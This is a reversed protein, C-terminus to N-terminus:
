LGLKELAEMYDPDLSTRRVVHEGYEDEYEISWEFRGEAAHITIIYEDSDGWAWDGLANRINGWENEIIVNREVCTSIETTTKKM